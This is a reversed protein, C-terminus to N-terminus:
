LYSVLPALDDWQLNAHLCIRVRSTGQPVTPPRIPLVYFGAQQMNQAKSVTTQNDGYIVPM